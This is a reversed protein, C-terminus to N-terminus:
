QVRLVIHFGEKTELVGSTSGIPLSFIEDEFNRDYKGRAFVGLSGYEPGKIIESYKGATSIFDCCNKDLNAKVRSAKEKAGTGHPIFIEYAKIILADAETKVKVPSTTKSPGGPSSM